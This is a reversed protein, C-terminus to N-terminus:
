RRLTLLAIQRGKASTIAKTPVTFTMGTPSARRLPGCELAIKTTAQMTQNTTNFTSSTSQNEPQLLSSALFYKVWTSFSIYFIVCTVYKNEKEIDNIGLHIQIGHVPKFRQRLLAAERENQPEALKAGLARCAKIASHYNRRINGFLYCKCGLREFGPSCPGSCALIAPLLHSLLLALTFKM